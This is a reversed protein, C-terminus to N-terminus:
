FATAAASALGVVMGAGGDGQNNMETNYMSTQAGLISGLGQQYLSRGQGITSAGQAMSGLLQNSPQMQNGVASNGSQNALSYAGQSAGPMGKGMGISDLQKAWQISKDQTNYGRNRAFDQQRLGQNTTASELGLQAGSTLRGRTNQIGQQRAANAMTAQQQANSLAGSNAMASLRGPAFGYRMGERLSQGVANSYGTRADSIASGVGAEIDGANRNYIDQDNAEAISRLGQQASQIGLRGQQDLGAQEDIVGQEKTRQAAAADQYKRAAFDDAQRLLQESRPTGAFETIQSKAADGISADGSVKGNADISAVLKGSADLIQTGGASQNVTYSQGNATLQNGSVTADPAKYSRDSLAQQMLKTNGTYVPQGTKPNIGYGGIQKGSTDYMKMSGDEAQDFYYAKGGSFYRNGDFKGIQGGITQKAFSTNMFANVVGASSGTMPRGNQDLSGVKKGASNLLTINGNEDTRATYGMGGSFFKDGIIQNAPLKYASQTPSTSGLGGRAAAIRQDLAALQTNYNSTIASTDVPVPQQYAVPNENGGGYGPNYPQAQQPQASQLQTQYTQALATRQANLADLETQARSAALGQTRQLGTQQQATFNEQARADDYQNMMGQYESVDGSSVGFADGMMAREMPRISRGYGYYDDGQRKTQDMLGLQAEVVPQAVALNTDYQRRGEALQERGLGAMIEASEKSAEAMPTYDPADPSDKGGGHYRARGASDRRSLEGIPEGLAELQRRSIYTM